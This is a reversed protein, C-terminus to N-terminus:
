LGRSGMLFDGYLEIGTLALVPTDALRWNDPNAKLHTDARVEFYRYSQNILVKDVVTFPFEWEPLLYLQGVLSRLGPILIAAIPVFENYTILGDGNLDAKEIIHNIAADSLNSNMLGFLYGVEEPTLTGDGNEDAIRFQEGLIVQWEETTKAPAAAANVQCSGVPQSPDDYTIVQAPESEDASFMTQEEHALATLGFLAPGPRTVVDVLAGLLPTMADHWAIGAENLAAEFADKDSCMRVTTWTCDTDACTCGLSGALPLCGSKGSLARSATAGACSWRRSATLMNDESPDRELTWTCNGIQDCKWDRGLPPRPQVDLQVWQKGDNSGCLTWAVTPAVAGLTYASPVLPHEGMDIKVAASLAGPGPRLELLTPRQPLIDPDHACKGVVRAAQQPRALLTRPDADCRGDITIKVPPTGGPHVAEWAPNSWFEHHDRSGICFLAGNDDWESQYKCGPHEYAVPKSKEAVKPAAAARPACPAAAPVPALNRNKWADYDEWGIHSTDIPGRPPNRYKCHLPHDKYQRDHHRHREHVLSNSPPPIYPISSSM